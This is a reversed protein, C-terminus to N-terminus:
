VPSAVTRGCVVSRLVQVIRQSAHGDWLPPLRSEATQKPANGNRRLIGIAEHLLKRPDTGVVRNTGHTVTVQRETNDRFTLCPVGLYTTEDQIGGSDTIVLAARDMWGVFDLYPAPPMKWVGSEGIRSHGDWQQLVASGALNIKAETRPHVPFIVPMDRAIEGIADLAARLRQPSDVNSPRHLTVVVYHGPILGLRNPRDSGRALRLADKLSDIM